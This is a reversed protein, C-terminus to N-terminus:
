ENRNNNRRQNRNITQLLTDLKGDLNGIDKDIKDIKNSNKDTQKIQNDIKQEIKTFEHLPAYQEKMTEKMDTGIEKVEIRCGDKLNDHESSAWVVAAVLVGLITIGLGIWKAIDAKRTVM